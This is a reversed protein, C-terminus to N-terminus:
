SRKTRRKISMTLTFTGIKENPDISPVVAYATMTRNLREDTNQAKAIEELIVDAEECIFHVDGEARKLFEAKFDKFIFDIHAGGKARQENIKKVALLAICLEAGICLAGFYM